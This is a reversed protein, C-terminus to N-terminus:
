SCGNQFPTTTRAESDQRKFIEILKVGSLAFGATMTGKPREDQYARIAALVQKGSQFWQKAKIRDKTAQEALFTRAEDFDEKPELKLTDTEWVLSTVEEAERRLRDAKRQASGFLTVLGDLDSPLERSFLVAELYFEMAEQMGFEPPHGPVLIAALTALELPGPCPITNEELKKRKSPKKM